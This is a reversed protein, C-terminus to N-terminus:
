KEMPGEFIGQIQGSRLFVSRNAITSVSTQHTVAVITAGTKTNMELILAWIEDSTEGDLNGTPEDLVLLPPEKALGRALAVRQQEGGSLRNPYNDAKEPIGVLELYRTARVRQESASLDFSIGIEVNELVTLTPFLNFAQFVIGVRLRRFETRKDRSMTSVPLGGVSVEGSTPVDLGSIMNLLTTKGSGSQGLIAIFEGKEIELTIGRLAQVMVEGMQYHRVLDTVVIEPKNATSM